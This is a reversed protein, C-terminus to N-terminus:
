EGAEGHADGAPAAEGGHADGAPAAEGGHAGEAPAADEGAKEGHGDDAPAADAKVPLTVRDGTWGKAELQVGKEYDFLWVATFILGLTIVTTAVAMITLSRVPVDDPEPPLEEVHHGSGHHDSAHTDTEHADSM